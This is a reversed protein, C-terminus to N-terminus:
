YGRVHLMDNELRAEIHDGKIDNKKSELYVQGGAQPRQTVRKHLDLVGLSLKMWAECGEPGDNLHVRLAQWHAAM